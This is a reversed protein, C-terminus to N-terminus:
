KNSSAVCSGGLGWQLCNCCFWAAVVGGGGEGTVKWSSTNQGEDDGDTPPLFRGYRKLPWTTASGLLSTDGTGGPVSAQGPESSRGEGAVAMGASLPRRQVPPLLM